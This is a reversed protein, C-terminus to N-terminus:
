SSIRARPGPLSAPTTVPIGPAAPACADTLKQGIIRAMVDSSGGGPYTVVFRVIRTPYSQAIAASSCLAVGAAACTFLAKAHKM